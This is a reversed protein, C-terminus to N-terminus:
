KIIIVRKRKYVSIMCQWWIQINTQSLPWLIIHTHLLLIFLALDLTVHQLIIGDFCLCIIGVQVFIEIVLGLWGWCWLLVKNKKAPPCNGSHMYSM